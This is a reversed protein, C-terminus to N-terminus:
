RPSGSGCGTPPTPSAASRRSPSSGRLHRLEIGDLAHAFVPDLAPDPGDGADHLASDDNMGGWCLCVEGPM